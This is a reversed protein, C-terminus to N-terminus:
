RGLRGNHWLRNARLTNKDSDILFDCSFATNEPLISTFLHQLLRFPMEVLHRKLQIATILGQKARTRLEKTTNAKRLVVGAPREIIFREFNALETFAM